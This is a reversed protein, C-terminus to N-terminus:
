VVNTISLPLLAYTQHTINTTNFIIGKSDFQPPSNNSSFLPSLIEGLGDFGIWIFALFYFL